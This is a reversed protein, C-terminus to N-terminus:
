ISIIVNVRTFTVDHKIYNGVHYLCPTIPNRALFFVDIMARMIIIKWIIHQELLISGYKLLYNHAAYLTQISAIRLQM